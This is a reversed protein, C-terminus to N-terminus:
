SKQSAEKSKQYLLMSIIIGYFSSIQPMIQKKSKDM